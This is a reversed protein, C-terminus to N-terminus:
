RSGSTSRATATATRISRTPSATPATTSPRPSGPACWSARARWSSACRMPWSTPASARRRDGRHAERRAGREGDAGAHRGREARPLAFQPLLDEADGRQHRRRRDAQDAPRHHRGPLHRHHGPQDLRRAHRRHRLFAGLGHRLRLAPRRPLGAGAAGPRQFALDRRALRLLRQVLLPRGRADHRAPLRPVGPRLHRRVGAPQLRGGHRRRRRVARHLLGEERPHLRLHRHARDAGGDRGAGRPDAGRVIELTVPDCAGPRPAVALPAPGEKELADPM